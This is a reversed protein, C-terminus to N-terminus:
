YEHKYLISHSTCKPFDSVHAQLPYQRERFKNTYTDMAMKNYFGLAMKPFRFIIASSALKIDKGRKTLLKCSVQFYQPNPLLIKDFELNVSINKKMSVHMDSNAADLVNRIHQIGKKQLFINTTHSCTEEFLKHLSELCVSNPSEM